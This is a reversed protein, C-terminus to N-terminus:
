NTYGYPFYPAVPPLSKIAFAFGAGQTPSPGNSFSISTASVSSVSPYAPASRNNWQNQQFLAFAPNASLALNFDQVPAVMQGINQQAPITATQGVAASGLVGWAFWEENPQSLTALAPIPLPPNLAVNSAEQVGAYQDLFGMNNNVTGNIGIANTISAFTLTTSSTVTAIATTNFGSITNGSITISDGTIINVIPNAFTVTATTGNGSISSIAQTVIPVNACAMMAYAFSSSAASSLAITPPTDGTAYPQHFYVCDQFSTAHWNICLTPAITTGPAAPTGWGLMPALGTQAGVHIFLMVTDGVEINAPFSTSISTVGAQHGSTVSGDPCHVALVPGCFLLVLSIALLLKAISMM